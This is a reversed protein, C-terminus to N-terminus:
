IYQEAVKRACFHEDDRKKNGLSKYGKNNIFYSICYRIAESESIKNKKALQKLADVQWYALIVQCRKM